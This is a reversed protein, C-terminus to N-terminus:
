RCNSPARQGAFRDNIWGIAIPTSAKGSGGHTKRPLTVFSVPAGTRCAARVFQVTVAPWVLTDDSGQVILLPTKGSVGHISNEHMISGWPPALLAEAAIFDKPLGKQASLAELQGELNNICNRNVAFVQNVARRDVLSDIPVGYKLSWSGVTMASLIRGPITEINAQLLVPLDTPPATAAVGVLRLEPAYSRSLKEGFLVAHGGQSYGWMAYRSGGGVGPIQRAARVSDIVAQAQGRGVLYGVPGPTGLGPYDTAAVVYGNAILDNLGSIMTTINNRLSPACNRAVGTTPHAWAVIKRQAPDKPAYDSVVVMGSAAIPRGRYDRTSYLVRWAKARYFAPLRAPEYRLLTGPPVNLRSPPINYFDSVSPKALAAQCCILIALAIVFRSVAEGLYRHHTGTRSTAAM